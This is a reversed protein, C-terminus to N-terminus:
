PPREPSGRIELRPRAQQWYREDRALEVDCLPGGCHPCRSLDIGLLQALWELTPPVEEVQRPRQGLLRRITALKEGRHRNALFGYHRIRTFREPLVHCFFRRLFQEPPLSTRKRRDGDRRDRYSFEVSERTCRILRDNSIAVRHTYRSLYDLLKAPGAFPPKSYVVWSKRYLRRVLARPSKGAPGFDRPLTLARRSLLSTFGALFKGRFVKSLARVAFLFDRGGAIWRAGDASLAGSAMLGHLHFHP